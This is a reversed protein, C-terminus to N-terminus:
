DNYVYNQLGPQSVYTSMSRTRSMSRFQSTWTVTVNFQVMNSSYTTSYPFPVISVTGVYQVGNGQASVLGINNTDYFWNTFTTALFTNTNTVQSWSYLRVGEMKDVMIQTARLNERTLATLSYGLSISGFIAVFAILIVSVAMVVEILTFAFQGKRSSRSNGRSSLQVKM